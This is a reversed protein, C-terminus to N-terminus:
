EQLKATLDIGEQVVQVRGAQDDVDRHFLGTGVVGQDFEFRHADHDLGALL